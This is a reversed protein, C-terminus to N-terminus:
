QNQQLYHWTKELGESLTTLGRTREDAIDAIRVNPPRHIGNIRINKDHGAIALMTAIKNALEYDTTGVGTGIEYVGVPLTPAINTLINIVDDKYIYDRTNKGVAVALGSSLKSFMAPVAHTTPQGPGYINHLRLVVIEAGRSVAHGAADEAALKSAGYPTSADTAAISSIHVVPTGEQLACEFLNVAALCNARWHFIPDEFSTLEGVAGAANIIFDPQWAKLAEKLRQTDLLDDGLKLDYVLADEELQQRIKATAASGIFGAGGAVFYKM